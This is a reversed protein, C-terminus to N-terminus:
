DNARVQRSPTIWFQRFRRLEIVGVALLDICGFAREAVPSVTRPLTSGIAAHDKWRQPSRPREVQAGAHTRDGIGRTKDLGVHREALAIGQGVRFGPIDCGIHVALLAGLIRPKAARAGLLSLQMM